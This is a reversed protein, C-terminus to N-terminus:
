SGPCSCDKAKGRMMVNLKRWAGYGSQMQATDKGHEFANNLV